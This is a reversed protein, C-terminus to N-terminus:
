CAFTFAISYPLALSLCTPFIPPPAFYRHLYTNVERDSMCLRDAVGLIADSSLIDRPFILAVTDGDTQQASTPPPSYSESTDMAEDQEGDEIHEQMNSTSDANTVESQMWVTRNQRWSQQAATKEFKKDCGSITGKRDSRQDLYFEVDEDKESKSLLRNSLIETIADPAGIDWLRDLEEVFKERQGGPDGKRNRCKCLRDWEKWLADLKRICGRPQITKIRAMRWFCLANETTIKYAEDRSQCQNRIHFFFKLVDRCTPLKSGSISTAPQGTLFMETHNRLVPVSSAIKANRTDSM